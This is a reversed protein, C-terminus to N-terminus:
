LYSMVPIVAGTKYAQHLRQFLAKRITIRHALLNGSRCKVNLSAPKYGNGNSALIHQVLVPLCQWAERGDKDWDARHNSRILPSYGRLVKKRM